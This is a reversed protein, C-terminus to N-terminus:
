RMYLCSSTHIGNDKGDANCLLDPDTQGQRKKTVILRRDVAAWCWLPAVAAGTIWLMTDPTGAHIATSIGRLNVRLTTLVPM